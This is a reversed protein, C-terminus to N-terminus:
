QAASLSAYGSTNEGLFYGFAANQKQFIVGHIPSLAGTAPHVFSGSFHGTVPNLNVTLGKLAPNSFSVHNADLTGTQSVPNSLNGDGLALTSNDTGAPVSLLPGHSDYLSGIAPINADFAVPAIQDQPRTPKIWRFLGDFDSIGASEELTVQGSILGKGAYLPSYFVIQGNSTVTTGALFARGDALSGSLVAHGAGGLSLTAWGNGMPVNPDTNQPNPPLSV